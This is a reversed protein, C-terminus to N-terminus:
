IKIFPELLELEKLTLNLPELEDLSFYIDPLQIESENIENIKKICEEVYENKIKVGDNIKILEGNENKEFYEKLSDVQQMYIEIEPTLLKKIKLIKYQTNVSFNLAGKEEFLINLSNIIKRKILM